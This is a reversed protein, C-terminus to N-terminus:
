EKKLFYYGVLTIFLIFILFYSASGTVAEMVSYGTFSGKRSLFYLVVLGLGLLVYANAKRPKLRLYGLLKGVLGPKKHVSEKILDSINWFRTKLESELPTGERKLEILRKRESHLEELKEQSYDIHQRRIMATSLIKGARPIRAKYEEKFQKTKTASKLTEYSDESKELHKEYFNIERTNERILGDIGLRKPKEVKKRVL